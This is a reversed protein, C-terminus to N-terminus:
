ETPKYKNQSPPICSITEEVGPGNNPCGQLLTGINRKVASRYDGLKDQMDRVFISACLCRYIKTAKEILCKCKLINAQLNNQSPLYCFIM